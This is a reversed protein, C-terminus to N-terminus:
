NKKFFNKFGIKFQMANDKIKRLNFTIFSKKRLKNKSSKNNKKKIKRKSEPKYHYFLFKIILFNSKWKKFNSSKKILYLM